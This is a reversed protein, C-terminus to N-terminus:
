ETGELGKIWAEYRIEVGLDQAKALKSGPKDGVVLYDLDKTVSGVPTGGLKTVLAEFEKRPTTLAGTFCVKKGSLPGDTAVPEKPTLPVIKIGMLGLDIAPKWAADALRRATQVGMGPINFRRMWDAAALISGQREEDSVVVYNLLDRDAFNEAIRRALTWGVGRVGLSVLFADLPIGDSKVRDIAEKYIKWSSHGMGDVALFQEETVDLLDTFKEVGAAEFVDLLKGGLGKMGFVTRLAYFLKGYLNCDDGECRLEGSPLHVLAAGCSPCVEPANNWAGDGQSVIEAVYPIVDGSREVVIRSGIRLSFTSTAELQMIIGLSHLSAHRLSAGAVTVPDFTARPVVKGTRGVRWEVERLITEARQAKFKWALAWRPFGSTEGLTMRYGFDAVKIVMGDADYELEDRMGSLKEYIGPLEAYDKVLITTAMEFGLETLVSDAPVENYQVTGDISYLSHMVFVLPRSATVAPDKQKLSGVAMSRPSSFRAEPHDENYKAFATRPVVVEGRVVMSGSKIADPVGKMTRANATVDEGVLGDGRTSATVLKGDVYRLELAIGDYKLQCFLVTRPPLTKLWNEVDQETFANQLSLMPEDRRFKKFAGRAEAGVPQEGGLLVIRRKLVDYEEDSVLQEGRNYYADDLKAKVKKLEELESM